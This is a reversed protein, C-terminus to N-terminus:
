KVGHLMLKFVTIVKCTATIIMFFAHLINRILFSECYCLFCIENAYYVSDAVIGKLTCKLTLEIHM